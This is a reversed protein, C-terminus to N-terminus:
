TKRSRRPLGTDAAAGLTYKWKQREGGIEALQTQLPNIRSDFQRLWSALKDDLRTWERQIEELASLALDSSLWFDTKIKMDAIEAAIAVIQSDIDTAFDSPALGQRYSNLAESIRNSAEVIQAPPVISPEAPPQESPPTAPEQALAVSGFMTLVAVIALTYRAGRIQELYKLLNMRM